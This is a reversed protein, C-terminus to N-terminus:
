LGGMFLNAYSPAMGPGMATGRTQHYTSGDYEFLNKNLKFSVSDLLFLKQTTAIDPDSNNKKEM